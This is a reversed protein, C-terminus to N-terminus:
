LRDVHLYSSNFACTSPSARCPDNPKLYALRADASRVALNLRVEAAIICDPRARRHCRPQAMPESLLPDTRMGAANLPTTPSWCRACRCPQDREARASRRCSRAAPASPPPSRAAPCTAARAPRTARAARRSLSTSGPRASWRRSPRRRVPPLPVKELQVLTGSLLRVYATPLFAGGFAPGIAASARSRPDRELLAWICGGALGLGACSLAQGGAV